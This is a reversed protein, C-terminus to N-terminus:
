VVSKRDALTPVNIRGFLPSAIILGGVRFLLLIFHDAGNFVTDIVTSM